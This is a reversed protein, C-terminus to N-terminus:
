PLDDNATTRVYPLAVGGALNPEGLDPAGEIMADPSPPIALVDPIDADAADSTPAADFPLAFDGAPNPPNESATVDTQVDALSTGADEFPPASSGAQGVECGGSLCLYLGAAALTPYGPRPFL